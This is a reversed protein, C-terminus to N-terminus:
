GVWWRDKNKFQFTYMHQWGLSSSVSGICISHLASDYAQRVCADLDLTTFFIWRGMCHGMTSPDHGREVSVTPHCVSGGARSSMWRSQLLTNARSFDFGKGWQWLDTEWTNHTCQSCPVKSKKKNGTRCQMCTAVSTRWQRSKARKEKRKRIICILRGLKAEIRKGLSHDISEVRLSLLFLSLFPRVRVSISVYIFYFTAALFLEFPPIGISFKIHIIFIFLVSFFFMAVRHSTCFWYDVKLFSLSPGRSNRHQTSVTHRPPVTISPHFATKPPCCCCGALPRLPASFRVFRPRHGHRRLLFPVYGYWYTTARAAAAKAASPSARGVLQKVEGDRRLLCIGTVGGPSPRVYIYRTCQWRRGFQLSEREKKVRSPHDQQALGYRFVLYLPNYISHHNWQVGAM